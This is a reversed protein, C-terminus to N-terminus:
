IIYFHLLNNVTQTYDDHSKISVKYTDIFQLEDDVCEIDKVKYCYRSEVEINPLKSNSCFTFLNDKTETEEDSFFIIEYFITYFIFTINLFKFKHNDGTILVGDKNYLFEKPYKKEEPDDRKSKDYKIYMDM